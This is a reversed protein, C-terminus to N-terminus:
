GWGKYTLDSGEEQTKKKAISKRHGVEPGKGWVDVANGGKLKNEPRMEKGSLYGRGPRHTKRWRTKKGGGVRRRETALPSRSPQRKGRLTTNVSESQRIFLTLVKKWNRRSRLQKQESSEKEPKKGGGKGEGHNCLM